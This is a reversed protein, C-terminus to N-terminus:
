KLYQLRETSSQSKFMENLAGKTTNSLKGHIPDFYLARQEPRLADSDIAIKLSNKQGKQGFFVRVTDDRLRRDVNSPGSRKATSRNM